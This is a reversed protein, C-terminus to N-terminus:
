AAGAAATTSQVLKPVDLILAVSGDGLITAGSLGEIDQYMKGLAKIVTQHQGIVHDVVFGFRSGDVSTIAIQEIPPGEGETGFWERLRVYPVLEGRVPALHRGHARAVDDRTLEICEEVLSLPLAFREEGVEVLLGEIIALTLPLKIRLTTGVGKASKIEVTGRLADISRKVVDMGVGRGSVSSLTKATSFGAQFILGFLDKETVKADPAILGREVGKARLVDPDLGAGDDAIEIYVNPGSHFASLRVTGKRPKGAAARAGSPEIGHDCSNRILHVLPDGLREIVTKDLETEAGETVLDIEKGLEGTLDRVLRRFRSFTTGIPLMRINLTTDRLEAALREIEESISVLDPDIRSAAIQSLRAQAIVLEGVRDVLSDLKEAAVRISSADAGSVASERKKRVERVVQQEAAAAAVAVPPVLGTEELLDGIRKQSSLVAQLDEPSVDGREVLIEGLKKYGAEADLSQGDDVVEITVDSRDDVFLFVDRIADLGRDTTLIATWCPVDSPSVPARTDPVVRCSGLRGLDDLLPAPDVGDRLLEPRPQFRVRYTQAVGPAASPAPSAPVPAPAPAAPAASPPDAPRPSALAKLAAVIADRQEQDGEGCGTADLMERIVDKARLALGVLDPTVALQGNRVRDFVTELEHTFTSIDDFGFMAGSGKITHMARFARAVLDPDTPSEELELLTTELEILLEGAEERFVERYQDVQSM